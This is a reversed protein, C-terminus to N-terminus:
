LATCLLPAVGDTAPMDIKLAHRGRTRNIGRKPLGRKLGDILVCAKCWKQSSIYGCRECVGQEPMKASSSVRFNEGSRIIDRIARPRIQELGKIFDCAFGRYANPSYICETSFYDLKKFYAYM